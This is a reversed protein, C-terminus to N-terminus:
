RAGGAVTQFEDLQEIFGEISTKAQEASYCRLDTQDGEVILVPIGLRERLRGPMGYRANSNHPCTRTDHFLIGDAGFLGVMEEIYAEKPPESRTIFLELSARAMSVLPDAPDLADAIWSNCYTSAVVATGLEAFLESQERLKGWLPMGEWYLRFREGAVAGTGEAVRESLEDLFVRYYDCAEPLGRMTVAPGMHITGDFFSLPAPRSTATELCARWLDSCERSLRVAEELRGDDLRMGAIGELVPILAEIQRVVSEVHADTVEGVMRVSNIGVVPVGWERGYYEMWDLVERCQNTNYVLVDARPVGELGYAKLPTEDALYAGIDSTLYSCIDPSYGLAHARGMHTNATRGAGLM